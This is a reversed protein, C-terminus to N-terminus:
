AQPVEFGAKRWIERVAPATLAAIFAEAADPAGSGASVAASYTTDQGFPPPLPGAIVAGEVSAVEGSLTLGFDAKGEVVRSAVEVGNQQLLSKPAMMAALGLREFVVPIYVRPRVASRRIARPSPAPAELLASSRRPPPSTRGRRAM